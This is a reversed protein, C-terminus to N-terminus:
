QAGETQTNTHAHMHTHIQEFVVGHYGPHSGTRTEREREWEMERENIGVRSHTKVSQWGAPSCVFSDIVM